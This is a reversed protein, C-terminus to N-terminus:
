LCPMWHRLMWRPFDIDFENIVDHKILSNDLSSFKINWEKNTSLASDTLNSSGVIINFYESKDFIYGKVHSNGTTAIRLEINSFKSLLKLAEPETFNLYQSVLVKGKVGRSELNKLSTAIAIVGGKTAFAVSIYFAVCDELEARISSLVKYPPDKKNVLLEPRLNKDSGVSKDIFGTELSARLKKNILDDM